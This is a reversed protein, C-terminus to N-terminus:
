PKEATIILKELVINDDIRFLTLSHSGAALNKFEAELVHKNNIVAKAWAKEEPTHQGGGTPHLNYNLIQTAQENLAVGLRTGGRNLTDLTPSLEIAVKANGAFPQNFTYSLAVKDRAETAAKGQPLALMGAKSQGLHEIATWTLGKNSAKSTYDSAAIIQVHEPPTIAEFQVEINNKGGYIHSVTPITQQQPDNWTVYNMHVQNVMGDWKGDNIQHYKETLAKDNAFNREVVEQFYNARADGAEVLQKNWAAAFYMEYLNSMSAIPWEVLQYFAPYQAKSIKSKAKEMDSTLTKWKMYHQYFEGGKLKPEAIEGMPFTESNILEPKRMAAYTGYRTILDAIDTALSKGFSQEAFGQAYSSLAKPTLAEPNWAMTLFFDIPYEIPKLDGVNVVWLDKAGRAYSLNMQQWVKGIQVTNTWKYNRPVGVYDFHYYVGFGGQRNLDKTPLRRVLGWNDDAFLLTVDEPVTMGEDYYDQVEKYLAWVQPTKHAAQGTVDSIIKRQDKVVQELLGIATDESMPEDGDGRMGLTVLSEYPTGDKKSMMREIGGRWFARINDGNTEYNWAGGGAPNESKRHWEAHARTLPEHHSTGMVIGMNDALATNKPDDLHFAKGWMAPWMYNGKLRLVLDFVREYMGANVGGFKKQAWGKLAPDEDNIFIGRYRVKPQDSIVGPTIYVQKQRQTPVDAFWYWPSVGLRESLDFTGFIAGRRDSGVIVLAQPVNPWPNEVVVRQYAEWQGQLPKLKLKGKAVLADILPNQGAVGILVLPKKLRKISNIVQTRKGSVRQLDKAFAEAVRKVAPNAQQSVVIPLPRGNKILALGDNKKFCVSGPAQCAFVSAPMLCFALAASTLFTRM